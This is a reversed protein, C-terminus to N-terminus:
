REQAPGGEGCDTSQSLTKSSSTPNPPGVQFFNPQQYDPMGASRKTSTEYGGKWAGDDWVSLLEETFRGNSFGDLSLQDDQCGSILVM